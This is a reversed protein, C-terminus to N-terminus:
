FRFPKIDNTKEFRYNEILVQSYTSGNYENIKFRGIITFKNNDNKVIENYEDETSKFKIFSINNYKIKITTKNAGMLVIDSSPIILNEIAFIPEDLKNGWVTDFNGIMKIMNESITNSDFVGDVLYTLTDESPITSILNYLEQVKNEQIQLGFASPHGQAFVFLNSKECWSRLDTIEKNKCGSASGGLIGQKNKVTTLLMGHKKYKDTLKNIIVRNFTNDEVDRGDLVM